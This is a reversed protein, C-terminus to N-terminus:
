SQNGEMIKQVLRETMVNISGAYQADWSSWSNQGHEMLIRACDWPRSIRNNYICAFNFYRGDMIMDMVQSAIDSEDRSYRNKMAVNYYIDSVSRYNEAAMAEMTASSLDTNKADIPICWLSVGDQVRTLYKEQAEDYKPFPLIGYDSDMKSIYNEIAYFQTPHLLAKDQMFMDRLTSGDEKALFTGENQHMLAYMKSILSNLKDAEPNYYPLGNEDRSFMQINSAQMFGDADNTPGIALGYSDADDRESNGDDYYHQKVLANMYDITWKGDTVTQYLDEVGWNKQLKQNFLICQTGGIMSLAVDGSAFVLSGGFTLESTIHSNWWPQDFDLYKMDHLNQFFEATGLTTIFASWGAVIDFAGDNAQISAQLETLGAHYKQWPYSPYAEVTIHLREQVRENRLYVAQSVQTSKDEVFVERISDPDDRTHIVVKQGNFDLDDPLNDKIASGDDTPQPDINTSGTSPSSPDNCAVMVVLMVVTLLLCIWKAQKKM